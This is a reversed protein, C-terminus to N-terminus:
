ERLLCGSRDGLEDGELFVCRKEIQFCGARCKWRRRGHFHSTGEHQARHNKRRAEGGGGGGGVPRLASGSEIASDVRGPRHTILFAHM